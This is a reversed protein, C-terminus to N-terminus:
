LNRTNLKNQDILVKITSGIEKASHRVDLESVNLNTVVRLVYESWEHLMIGKTALLQVLRVAPIKLKSLDLMVINTDVNPMRLDKIKAEKILSALITAHNNDDEIRSVNNDIAYLGMGALLGSQHLGGGFWKNYIRANKILSKSGMLIAGFPAGLGKNLSIMMSDAIDGYLKPCVKEKAIANFIRAGDLHVRWGQSRAFLSINKLKDFAFIKGSHYNISNELCLLKIKNGYVSKTRSALVAEVSDPTIIGDTTHIAQLHAGSIIATAGSEYYHIHYSQDILVDDGPITHVKIAVQNAMTGSVVFMADEFGFKEAFKDELARTTSDIDFFADKCSSLKVTELMKESPVTVTDSRLDIM